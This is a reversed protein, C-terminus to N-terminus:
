ARRAIWPLWPTRGQEVMHELIMKDKLTDMSAWFGRHKYAILQKAELLRHFPQEVLEEGERMYNFFEPRFLFFGGNIWIESQQSTRFETVLDNADFEVLHYSFNPRVALFMAVKNQAKFYEIMLDLPADTLGDSYNALFIDDDAVHDRVAWLREGISRQLGTDVFTIRAGHPRPPPTRFHPHSQTVNGRDIGREHQSFYGEIVEAKYGLCLVFENLGYHRYYEMVHWLIPYPGVPVMPKPIASSYERLRTGLGGCFLVVKM